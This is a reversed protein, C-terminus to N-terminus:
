DAYLVISLISACSNFLSVYVSIISISELPHFHSLYSGFDVYIISINHIVFHMAIQRCPCWHHMLRISVIITIVIAWTLIKRRLLLFREKLLTQRYPYKKRYPHCIEGWHSKLKKLFMLKICTCLANANNVHNKLYM